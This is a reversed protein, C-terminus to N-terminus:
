VTLGGDIKVVEGTIYGARDSALFLCLEAVDEAAGLRGLPISSVIQNRIDEKISQVMDTDIFGPAVVNVRIGYPAVEKALSKSFGIIGAKTASYNTQRAIGVLGSVSSMNLICGKKQKLFTVIAARSLNFVGTLNTDIVAQWDDETMMMLAKDKIIGANNILVDLSGFKSIAQEIVSKSQGFDRADCSLSLCSGGIKEIEKKLTEAKDLSKNYTFVINAGAKAFALCCARGIGRSGGSIIVTKSKFETQSM